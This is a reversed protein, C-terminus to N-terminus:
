LTEVIQEASFKEILEIPDTPTVGRALTVKNSSLKEKILYVDIKKDKLMKITNAMNEKASGPYLVRSVLILKKKM